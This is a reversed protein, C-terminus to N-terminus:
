GHIEIKKGPCQSLLHSWLEQVQEPEATRLDGMVAARDATILLLINRTRLIQEIEDYTLKKESGSQHNQAMIMSNYFKLTTKVTEGYNKQNTKLTTKVSKRAAKNINVTFFVGWFSGFFIMPFVPISVNLFMCVIGAVAVVYGVAAIISSIKATKKHLPIQVETLNEKTYECDLQILSIM